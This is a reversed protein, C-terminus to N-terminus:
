QAARRCADLCNCGARSLGATLDGASTKVGLASPQLVQAGGRRVEVGLRGATDLRVTATVPPLPSSPATLQWQQAAAAHAPLRPVALLVGALLLGAAAVVAKVTRM